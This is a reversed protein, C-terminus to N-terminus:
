ERATMARRIAASPAADDFTIKGKSDRVGLDSWMKALDITEARGGLRAHLEELVPVGVARDGARLVDDITARTEGSGLGDLVGRLATELSARNQTRKRIEVDAVFCFLAGGWYTRGWTHTNDLGRDGAEPEGNPLGDVLGRWVEEGAITGVQARAIPEVYTAIGEELWHQTRPLSPSALHSMEHTLVWDRKTDAESMQESIGLLITAGGGALTRGGATENGFSTPAIVLLLRKVPFHGYYADIARASLDIWRDIAADDLALRGPLMAVEITADARALTRTRIKGFLTYPASDIDNASAGYTDPAGAIAHVGTAFRADGETRVHFRYTARPDFMTPRLLWTSPPSELADRMEMASDADGLAKAADGLRVRYRVVCGAGCAIAWAGDHASAAHWASEGAAHAEVGEAFPMADEDILFADGSEAPFTAEIALVHADAAVDVEYTWTAPASKAGAASSTTTAGKPASATTHTACSALAILSVALPRRV